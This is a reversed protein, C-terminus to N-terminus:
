GQPNVPQCGTFCKGVHNIKNLKICLTFTGTEVSFLILKVFPLRLLARGSVGLLEVLSVGLVEVLTGPVKGPVGPVERLSDWSKATECTPRNM